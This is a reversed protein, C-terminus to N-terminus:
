GNRIGRRTRRRSRPVRTTRSCRSGSWAWTSASRKSSGRLAAPLRLPVPRRRGPLRRHRPQGPHDAAPARGDRRPRGPVRRGARTRRGPVGPAAPALRGTRPRPLPARCRRIYPLAAYPCSARRAALVRPLPSCPRASRTPLVGGAPRPVAVLVPGRRLVSSRGSGRRRCPRPRGVARVSARHGSVAGVARGRCRGRGRRRSRAGVGGGVGYTRWPWWPRGAVTASWWGGSGRRPGRRRARAGADEAPGVAREAEADDGDDASRRRPSRRRAGRHRDGRPLQVADRQVGEGEGRVERRAQERHHEGPLPGVPAPRQPRQGRPIAANAAPSSSDPVARPAHPQEDEPPGHLPEAAPQHDDRQVDDDAPGVRLPQPRRDHRRERRAPHHGDTTPGSAAPVTM